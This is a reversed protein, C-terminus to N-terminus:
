RADEDCATQSQKHDRGCNLCKRGRSHFRVTHNESDTVPEIRDIVIPEISEIVDLARLKESLTDVAEQIDQRYGKSGRKGAMLIKKVAHHLRGSVDDVEFVECVGYIDITQRDSVDKHYHKHKPESM